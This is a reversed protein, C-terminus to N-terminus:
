ELLHRKSSTEKEPVYLCYFVKWQYEWTARRIAWTKTGIRTRTTNVSNNMESAGEGEPNARGWPNKFFNKMVTDSHRAGEDRTQNVPEHEWFCWAWRRSTWSRQKSQQDLNSRSSNTSSLWSLDRKHEFRCLIGKKELEEERKITFQLFSRLM